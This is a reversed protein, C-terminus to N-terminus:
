IVDCEQTPLFAYRLWMQAVNGCDCWWFHWMLAVDGMIVDTGYWGNDCWQHTSDVVCWWNCHM